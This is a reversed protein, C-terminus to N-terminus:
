LLAPEEERDDAVAATRERPTPEEAPLDPEASAKGARMRQLLGALGTDDITDLPSTVLERLGYKRALRDRAAREDPHDAVLDLLEVDETQGIRFIRGQRQAHAMATMPTDFQALWKGTQLNAGVMAADSALLIDFEGAKFARKIDDKDKASHKGTDKPTAGAEAARADYRPLFGLGREPATTVPDLDAVSIAQPDDAPAVLPIGAESRLDADLLLRDKQAKVATEAADFLRRVHEEQAAEVESAPKDQHDEIRFRTDEEKWGLAAGVKRIFEDRAAKASLRLQDLAQTKMGSLGAERDRKAQERRKQRREAAAEKARAAYEEESRVGTLRLYNLKGGAGGIVRYSGDGAPKILVPHGDTGPGNPRVTIWRAGAPLAKFLTFFRGMLDAAQSRRGDESPSAGPGAEFLAHGSPVALPFSPQVGPDRLGPTESKLLDKRALGAPLVPKSRRLLAAVDDRSRPRASSFELRGPAKVTLVAVYTDGAENLPPSALYIDRRNDRDERLVKWPRAIAAFLRDMLVARSADFVRPGHRNSPRDYADPTKGPAAGRTWMHTRACGAETMRAHLRECNFLAPLIETRDM